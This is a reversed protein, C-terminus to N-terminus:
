REDEFRARAADDKFKIEGSHVCFGTVCAGVAACVGGFVAWYDPKMVAFYVAAGILLLAMATMLAAVTPRRSPAIFCAVYVIAAGLVLHSMLAIYGRAVFSVPDGDGLTTLTLHNGLVVLLYALWAGVFSAPLLAAWRLAAPWVPRRRNM